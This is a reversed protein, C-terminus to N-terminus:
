NLKALQTHYFDMQEGMLKSMDFKRVTESLKKAAAKAGDQNDEILSQNLAFYDTLFGNIQKKVSVDVNEFAKIVVLSAVETKGKDSKDNSEMADHNHEKKGGSCAALFAAFVLTMTSVILQKTKM